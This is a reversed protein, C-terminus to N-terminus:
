PLVVGNANSETYGDYLEVRKISANVLQANTGVTILSTASAAYDSDAWGAGQDNMLLGVSVVVIKQSM